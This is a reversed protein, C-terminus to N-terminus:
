NIKECRNKSGGSSKQVISQIKQKWFVAMLKDHPKSTNLKNIKAMQSGKSQWQKQADSQM